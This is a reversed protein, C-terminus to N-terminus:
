APVAGLAAHEDWEQSMDAEDVAPSAGTLEDIEEHSLKLEQEISSRGTVDRALADRLLSRFKLPYRALVSNEPLVPWESDDPHYGM